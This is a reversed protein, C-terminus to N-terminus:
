IKDQHLVTFYANAYDRYFAHSELHLQLEQVKLNLVTIGYVTHYNKYMGQKVLVTYFSEIYVKAQSYTINKFEYNKVEM